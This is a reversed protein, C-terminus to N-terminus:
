ATLERTRALSEWSPAMAKRIALYSPYLESYLQNLAPDPPTTESLAPTVWADVSTPIDPYIGLQVAAMMAAGAAGSEERNVTRVEAGLMSALIVRLARSRAAGGGLRVEQPIMGTALYCDRSAFALGEYVARVMGAYSTRNTLGSFQARAYPDLFPGREGAELIYPHYLASAPPADLVRKDMASLMAARSTEAGAAAAAERGADLIWDINVTAAMNSQLALSAGFIPFCMTYGSLSANLKVADLTATYRMHMGTTGIITLGVQGSRDFAGGGLGTCAVDLYALIVPLGEPLGTASAATASLGHSIETGEVIPPLLRSCDAIGMQELIVPEYARTRFNGFTFSAEAPCTAREGTLKFYLWDKCHFATSARAIREPQNELLWALQSSSMCASLGCGTLEFHRRYADSRMYPAILGAARSDLWLLAGGVPEGERDVLWTGDGQGTVAVAAVRAALDPIADHLERLTTACDSWTRHMDQEVQGPGPTAYSNPRSAMALQKGALTFVVSKIVSTGADIGILLDREM